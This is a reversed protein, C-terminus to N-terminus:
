GTSTEGAKSGLNLLLSMNEIQVVAALKQRISAKSDRDTIKAGKSRAFDALSERSPFDAESYIDRGLLRTMAEGGRSALNESMEETGSDDIVRERRKKPSPAPRESNLLPELARQLEAVRGEDVLRAVSELVAAIASRESM